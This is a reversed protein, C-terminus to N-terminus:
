LAAYEFEIIGASQEYNIFRLKYYKGDATEVVYVLDTNTISVDHDPPGSYHIVEHTGEYALPRTQSDTTLWSVDAPVSELENFAQDSIIAVQTDNEYNIIINQMPFPSGAVPTTVLGIHWDAPEVATEQKLDFHVPVDESYSQTTTTAAPFTSDANMPYSYSINMEITSGKNVMFAALSYDTTRIFYFTGNDEISHNDQQNYTSMDMWNNGIVLSSTSDYYFLDQGEHRATAFDGSTRIVASVAAAANLAVKYTGGEYILTVDHLNEVSAGSTFSFYFPETKINPTVVEIAEEGDDPSECGWALLGLIIITLPLIRKSM